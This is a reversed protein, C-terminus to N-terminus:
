NGRKARTSLHPFLLKDVPMYRNNRRGKRACDHSNDKDTGLYLHEPNCCPPNDCKHLVLMGKPIPGNHIEYSRRHAYYRRTKPHGSEYVGVGIGPRGYGRRDCAGSYVWCGNPGNKNVKSWLVADRSAPDRRTAQYCDMSCFKKTAFCPMVWFPKGCRRCPRNVSRPDKNSGYRNGM